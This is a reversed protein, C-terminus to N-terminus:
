HATLRGIPGPLGQRDRCTKGGGIGARCIPRPLGGVGSAPAIRRKRPRGGGLFPRV